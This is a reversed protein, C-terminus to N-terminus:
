DVFQKGFKDKLRSVRINIANATLGLVDAMETAGVGDLYLTLVARDLDGLGKVFQKLIEEQPLEDLLGGQTRILEKIELAMRSRIEKRQFSIATNIAVRYLWTEPKSDGRFKPFSRWLQILIEQMLDEADSFNTYSLAIRRISRLNDKVLRDFDMAM